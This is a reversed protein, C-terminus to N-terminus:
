GYKESGAKWTVVFAATLEEPREFAAEVTEKVREM